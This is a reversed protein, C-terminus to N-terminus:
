KRGDYDSSRNVKDEEFTGEGDKLLIRLIREVVEIVSRVKGVLLLISLEASLFQTLLARWPM